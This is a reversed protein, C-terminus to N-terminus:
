AKSMRGHGEHSKKNYSKGIKLLDTVFVDPM